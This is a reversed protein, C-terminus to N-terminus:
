QETATFKAPYPATSPISLTAVPKILNSGFILRDHAGIKYTLGDITNKAFLVNQAGDTMLVEKGIHMTNNAVYVNQTNGYLYVGRRGGAFVNGTVFTNRAEANIRVHSSRASYSKNNRITNYDSAFVVYNDTNGYSVNNEILNYDSDQHLMFGHLKNGVSTNNRIINYDCRKSVIFGHKGNYAFVNDEILANNSDDHPDLGYVDNHAFYNNRWTIGSAGYTYAGFHNYTFTSREVWGTAIEAGLLDDSIRWSVGYTGGEKQAQNTRKSAKQADPLDNGLYSFDVNIADMRGNKARVFAREDDFTTDPKGTTPDYTTVAVDKLLASAEDLCLCTINNPASRLELRTVTDGTIDLRINGELSIARNIRYVKDSVRQIVGYSKLFDMLEPINTTALGLRYPQQVRLLGNDETIAASKIKGNPTPIPSFPHEVPPVKITTGAVVLGPNMQKLTEQSVSFYNAVSALTQGEKLKYYAFKREYKPQSARFTSDAAEWNETILRQNGANGLFIDYRGTLFITIVAAGILLPLAIIVLSPKINQRLGGPRKKTM